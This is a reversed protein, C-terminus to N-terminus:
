FQEIIIPIKNQGVIEKSKDTEDFTNGKFNDQSTRLKITEEIRKMKDSSDHIISDDYLSSVYQHDGFVNMKKKEVKYILHQGFSSLSIERLTLTRHIRQLAFLKM